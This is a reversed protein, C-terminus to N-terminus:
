GICRLREHRSSGPRAVYRRVAPSHVDVVGAIELSAEGELVALAARTKQRCKAQTRSALGGDGTSAEHYSPPRQPQPARALRRSVRSYGFFYRIPPNSATQSRLSLLLGSSNRPLAPGPASDWIQYSCERCREVPCCKGRPLGLESSGTAKCLDQASLNSATDRCSAGLFASSCYKPGHEGEQLHLAEAAVVIYDAAKFQGVTLATM